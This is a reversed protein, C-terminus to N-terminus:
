PQVAEDDDGHVAAITALIADVSGPEHEEMHGDPNIGVYMCAWPVILKGDPWFFANRRFRLFTESQQFRQYLDRLARQQPKTPIRKM